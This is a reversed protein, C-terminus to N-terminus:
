LHFIIKDEDDNNFLDALCCDLDYSYLWCKSEKCDMPEFGQCNSRIVFSASKLIKDADYSPLHWTDALEALLCISNNCEPRFTSFKCNDCKKNCYKEKLLIHAALLDSFEM